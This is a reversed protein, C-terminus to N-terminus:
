SPKKLLETRVMTGWFPKHPDRATRHQPSRAAEARLALAVTLAATAKSCTIKVATRCISLWNQAILLNKQTCSGIGSSARPYLPSFFFLHDFRLISVSCRAVASLILLLNKRFHYSWLCFISVTEMQCGIAELLASDQVINLMAGSSDSILLYSFVATSYESSFNAFCLLDLMCSWWGTRCFSKYLTKYFLIQKLNLWTFCILASLTHKWSNEFHKSCLKKINRLEYPNQNWQLGPITTVWWITSM